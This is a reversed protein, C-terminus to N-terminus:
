SAVKKTTGIEGLIGVLLKGVVPPVEGSPDVIPDYASLTVGTVPLAKVLNCVAEQLEDPSPGGASAYRNVQLEDPDIVDLDIHLHTRTAGAEKLKAV